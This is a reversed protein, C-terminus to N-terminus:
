VSAGSSASAMPPTCTETSAPPAYGAIKTSNPRAACSLATSVRAGGSPPRQRPPIPPASGRTRPGQGRRGALARSSVSTTPGAPPRPREPGSPVRAVGSRRFAPSLHRAELVYAVPKRIEIPRLVVVLAQQRRPEAGDACHHVPHAALGVVHHPRVPIRVRVQCREMRVEQLCADQLVRIRQHRLWRVRYH